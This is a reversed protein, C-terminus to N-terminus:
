VKLETGTDKAREKGLGRSGGEEEEERGRRESFHCCATSISLSGSEDKKWLARAPAGNIEGRGTASLQGKPQPARRRSSQGRRTPGEGRQRDAFVLDLDLAACLRVSRSQRFHPSNLIFLPTRLLTFSSARRDPTKFRSSSICFKTEVTLLHFMQLETVICVSRLRRGELM